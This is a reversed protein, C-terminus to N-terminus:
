LGLFTGKTENIAGCLESADFRLDVLQFISIGKKTVM